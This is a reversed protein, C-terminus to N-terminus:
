DEDRPSPSTYLLCDYTQLNNGSTDMEVVSPSSEKALFLSVSGQTAGQASVLDVVNDGVDWPSMWMASGINYRLVVMSNDGSGVYLINDIEVLATMDETAPSSALLISGEVFPTNNPSLHLLTGSGDDILLADNVPSAPGTAPWSVLSVGNEALGLTVLDYNTSFVGSTTNYTHLSDGNLIYLTPGVRQVGAIADSALWNGSTWTSLWFGAVFDFRALGNDPSGLMLQNGSIAMTTITDSHLNNASSWTSLAAATGIDYRVVGIGEIAAYVVGNAEIM